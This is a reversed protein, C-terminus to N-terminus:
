IIQININLINERTLLCVGNDYLFWFSNTEGENFWKAVEIFCKPLNNDDVDKDEELIRYILNINDGYKVYITIKCAYEDVYEDYNPQIISYRLLSQLM